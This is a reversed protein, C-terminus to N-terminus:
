ELINLNLKNIIDCTVTVNAYHRVHSVSVESAHSSVLNGLSAKQWQPLKWLGLLAM